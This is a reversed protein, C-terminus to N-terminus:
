SPFFQSSCCLSRGAAEVLEYLVPVSAFRKSLRLRQLSLVNPLVAALAHTAADSPVANELSLFALCPLFPLVACLQEVGSPQLHAHQLDLWTSHPMKPLLECLPAVDLSAGAAGLPPCVLRRLARLAHPCGALAECHANNPLWEGISLESLKLQEKKRKM